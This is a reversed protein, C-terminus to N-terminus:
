LDDEMQQLRNRRVAARAKKKKSESKKEFFERDRFSQIIGESKVKKKFKRLISDLSEGPKKEQLVM